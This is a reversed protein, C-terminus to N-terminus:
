FFAEDRFKQPSPAGNVVLATLERPVPLVVTLVDDEPLADPSLVGEVVSVGSGEFRHTLSKQGTGHAPLDFFGKAVVRGDVKLQLEVDKMAEESFNRATFTFQFAKPDVQPAAEVKVDLLARNALVELG